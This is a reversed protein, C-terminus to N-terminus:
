SPAINVRKLKRHEWDYWHQRLRQCLRLRENTDRATKGDVGPTKKGTNLQTVQGVSTAQAARSRLLLRQLWQVRRNDNQRAAQYIGRQIRWVLRSWTRWPLSKWVEDATIQRIQGVLLANMVMGLQPISNLDTTFEITEKIKQALVTAQRGTVTM